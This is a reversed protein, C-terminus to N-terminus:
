SSPSWRDAYPRAPGRDRYADLGDGLLVETGDPVPRYYTRRGNLKKPCKRFGAALLAGALTLGIKHIDSDSLDEDVALAFDKPTIRNQVGGRNADYVIRAAETWNGEYQHDQNSEGRAADEDRTLHWDEGAQYRAVAEALLQDRNERVYDLDAVPQDAHDDRLHEIKPCQIIWYRRSGTTDRLPHADNTTGVIVNSRPVTRPVKSYPSRYTDASQSLFAKKSEEAAKTGSALEADEYIWSRQIVQYKDKSRLDLPTDVFLDRWPSWDALLTSKRFGQRGSLVLVTDMKCGPDLARAVLAIAWKRGYTAYLDGRAQDLYVGADEAPRFVSWYVWDQLRCAGDWELGLLYDAVPNKARREAVREVASWIKDRSPQNRTWNYRRELLLLIDIYLSDRVEASGSMLVDRFEDRWIDLEPDGELIRLLNEVSPRPTKTANGEKDRTMDLVVGRSTMSATSSPRRYTNLLVRGTANSVYRSRGDSEKVFFGSGRSSGGFPCVVNLRPSSMSDLVDQFSRAEDFALTSFDVHERAGRAPAPRGPKPTSTPSSTSSRTSSLPLSPAPALEAVIQEVRARDLSIEPRHEVPEVSRPRRACKVNVSGPRRALRAGVDNTADFCDPYTLGISSWHELLVANVEAVILKHVKSLLDKDTAVDDELAYHFHWGWGSTMTLTADRGVVHALVPECFRRLDDLAEEVQEDDLHSYMWEKRDGVKDELQHGSARRQADVLGVLDLDFFLSTVRVCNAVSRGKGTGQVVDSRRFLGTSIYEGGALTQNVYTLGMPPLPWVKKINM